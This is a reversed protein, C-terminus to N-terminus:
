AQRHIGASEFHRFKSRLRADRCSLFDSCLETLGVQIEYRNHETDTERYVYVTIGLVHLARRKEEFTADQYHNNMNEAWTLFNDIEQQQRELKKATPLAQVKETELKEIKEELDNIQALLLNRANGRLGKLDEVFQAQENKANEISREIATIDYEQKLKNRLADLAQKIQTLDQLLSGIYEWVATDIINTNITTGRCFSAGRVRVSCRYYNHNNGKLRKLSRKELHMLHNCHGCKIFGARLLALEPERNNRVAELKAKDLVEQVANFKEKSIIAPITGEPLDITDPHQIRKRKGDEKIFKVRYAQALGTYIPNRLINFITTVAWKGGKKSPIADNNLTKAITRCAVGALRMDFIRIVVKAQEPNILFRSHDSNYDYGYNSIYPPGM